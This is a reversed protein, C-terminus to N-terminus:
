CVCVSTTYVSWVVDCMFLDSYCLVSPTLATIFIAEEVYCESIVLVIMVVRVVIVVALM